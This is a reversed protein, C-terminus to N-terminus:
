RKLRKWVRVGQQPGYVGVTQVKPKVPKRSMDISHAIAYNMGDVSMKYSARKTGARRKSIVNTPKDMEAYAVTGSAAVYKNMVQGKRNIVCVMGLITARFKVMWKVEVRVKVNVNVMGMWRVRVRVMVMVKVRVWVM